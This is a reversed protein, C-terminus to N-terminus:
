PTNALPSNRGLDLRVIIWDGLELSLDAFDLAKRVGVGENQGHSIKNRRDVLLSLERSRRSDEETLFNELEASWGAQLGRFRDILTQPWPNRGKFL